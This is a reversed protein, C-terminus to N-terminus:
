GVHGTHLGLAGVTAEVPWQRLVTPTRKASTTILEALRTLARAYFAPEGDIVTVFGRGTTFATDKWPWTLHHSVTRTNSHDLAHILM